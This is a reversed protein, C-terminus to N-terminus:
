EELMRKVSDPLADRADEMARLKKAYRWTTIHPIKPVIRDQLAECWEEYAKHYQVLADFPCIRKWTLNGKNDSRVTCIEEILFPNSDHSGKPELRTGPHKM